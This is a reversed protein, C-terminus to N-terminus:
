VTPSDSSAGTVKALAADLAGLVRRSTESRGEALEPFFVMVRHAAEVLEAVGEPNLGALANVCAVIRAADARHPRLASCDAIVKDEGDAISTGNHRRWVTWPEPAWKAEMTM